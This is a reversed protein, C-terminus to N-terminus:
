ISRDDCKGEAESFTSAILFIQLFSELLLGFFIGVCCKFFFNDIISHRGVGKCWFM